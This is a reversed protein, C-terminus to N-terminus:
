RLFAELLIKWIVGVFARTVKEPLEVVFVVGPVLLEDLFSVVEEVIANSM